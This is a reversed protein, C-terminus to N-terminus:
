HKLNCIYRGIPDLHNASQGSLIITLWTGSPFRRLRSKRRYRRVAILGRSIDTPATLPFM